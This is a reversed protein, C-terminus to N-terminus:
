VKGLYETLLNFFGDADIETIVRCNVPKDSKGWWDTVTRGLAVGEATEVAVHCERGDFLEPRLIYAIVCPDHLPAGTAGYREVDRRDYYTLIQGVAKAVPTDVAEIAARLVPTAIAKRTVDLGLMTLHIGSDFVVKAAQPDVYINFEAAPTINGLGLASGGMLVIERIHSSIDPAMILALAINTLPGIPCLTLEGGPASRCAEIIFSVAHRPDVGLSPEPLNVGDLGTKGHVEEATELKRMMPRPCGAFVPVDHRDALERIRLANRVTMRLAVNGAVCTIGALDLEDKSAFALLLAVADDQGPDCDIILRRADM